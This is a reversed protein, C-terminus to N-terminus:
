YEQNSSDSTVQRPILASEEASTVSQSETLLFKTYVKALNNVVLEWNLTVPYSDEYYEDWFITPWDNVKEYTAELVKFCVLDNYFRNLIDETLGYDAMSSSSLNLPAIHQIKLDAITNMIDSRKIYLPSEEYVSAFFKKSVDNDLTRPVITKGRNATFCQKVFDKAQDIISEPQYYWVTGM